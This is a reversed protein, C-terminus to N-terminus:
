FHLEKSSWISLTPGPSLRLFTAAPQVSCAFTKFLEARDTVCQPSVRESFSIFYTVTGGSSCFSRMALLLLKWHTYPGVTPMCLHLGMQGLWAAETHASCSLACWWSVCTVPNIETFNFLWLGHWASSHQWFEGQNNIKVHASVIGHGRGTSQEWGWLLDGLLCVCFGLGSTFLFSSNNWLCLREAPLLVRLFLRWPSPPWASLPHWAPKCGRGQLLGLFLAWPVACTASLTQSPSLTPVLCLGCETIGSTNELGPSETSETQHQQLANWCHWWGQCLSPQLFHVEACVTHTHAWVCRWSSCVGVSVAVAWGCRQHSIFFKGRTPALQASSVFLFMWLSSQHIMIENCFCKKGLNLM